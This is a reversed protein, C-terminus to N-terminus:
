EMTFRESGHASTDISTAAHNAYDYTWTDSTPGGQGYLGESDHLRPMLRSMRPIKIKVM